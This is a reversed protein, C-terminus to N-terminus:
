SIYIDLDWEGGIEIRLDEESIQLSPDDSTSGVHFFFSFFSVQLIM